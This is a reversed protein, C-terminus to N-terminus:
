VTKLPIYIKTKRQEKPLDPESFNVFECFADADAVIEQSSPYWTRFIEMFVNELDGYSGIYTFVAYRGEPLIKKAVEGKAQIPQSLAVCADFRCKARGVITPDDLSMGYYTKVQSSLREKEIFGGLVQFAKAPTEEYDGIRRVFLVKEEKRYLCEPKLMAEEEEKSLTRKMIAQILPRFKKRYERPSYGMVQNFVKSFSSSSEYGSDLAIDTIPRDSYQLKGAAKELRLRKIYEALSEGIYARFLRHFYYPSIHAIKAMKELDLPEELHTEIYVLVKLICQMHYSYTSIDKM